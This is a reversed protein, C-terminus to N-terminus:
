KVFSYPSNSLRFVSKKYDYWELATLFLRRELLEEEFLRLNKEYKELIATVYLEVLNEDSIEKIDFFQEQKYALASM